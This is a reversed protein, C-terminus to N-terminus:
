NACIPCSIRVQNLYASAASKLNGFAEYIEDVDGDEIIEKVENFLENDNEEDFSGVFVNEKVENIADKWQIILTKETTMNEALKTIVAIAEKVGDLANALLNSVRPRKLIKVLGTVFNGLGSFVTNVIATNTEAEVGKSVTEAIGSLLATSGEADAISEL